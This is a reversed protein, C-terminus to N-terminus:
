QVRRGISVGHFGRYLLPDSKATGLVRDTERRIMEIREALTQDGRGVQRIFRGGYNILNPEGRLTLVVDPGDPLTQLIRQLMAQDDMIQRSWETAAELREDSIAGFQEAWDSVIQRGIPNGFNLFFSGANILWYPREPDEPKDTAAILALHSKDRLFATLDFDLDAVFADADLYCAWGRFGGDLLRQLLPIRNYTAHWARYGRCIGLFSQYSFNHRACYETVTRSAVELLPKYAHLDATQLFLINRAPDAQGGIARSIAEHRAEISVPEIVGSYLKLDGCSITVVTDPESVHKSIPFLFARRGDGMGAEELDKRYQTPSLAAIRSGNISIEIQDVPGDNDIWGTIWYSSFEDIHWRYAM